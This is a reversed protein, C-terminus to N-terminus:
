KSLYSHFLVICITGVVCTALTAVSGSKIWTVFTIPEDTEESKSVVVVNATSGIPTGNGGFGVGLALAWWLLNVSTGSSEQMHLLVPIMAMTFPINDILASAIAAVWLLIVAMMVENEISNNMIANTIINVAGSKELAGVLVFLAFFFALVSWEIKKLIPQPDRTMSVLGLAAVGGLLAVFAPEIHLKDHVFFLVVVVALVGLTKKVNKVDKISKKADWKMLDDINAPKKALEKRFVIKLCFLTVIWAIIVIPAVHTLFDNFSFHAASGIMVNPPDGVLTAVGGTDSLLAEAMLLPTASIKTIRAILITVPVIIIVTTVNDLIFSIVTTVTGLMVVLYWPNGKARQASIIALYELFGTEELIVVIIMMGTLLGLTNFDVSEFAQEPTYFGMSMGAVVVLIAGVMAIVTRHVKESIILVFTAVFIVVSVIIPMNEIM